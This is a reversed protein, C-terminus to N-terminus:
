RRGYGQGAWGNWGDWWSGQWTQDGWAEDEFQLKKPPRSPRRPPRPASTDQSAANKVLFTLCCGHLTVEPSQILVYTNHTNNLTTLRESANSYHTQLLLTAISLCIGVNCMSTHIYVYMCMYMYTYSYIYLDHNLSMSTFTGTLNRYGSRVSLM